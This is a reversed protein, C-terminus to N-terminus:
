KRVTKRKEPPKVLEKRVAGVSVLYNPRDGDSTNVFHTGHKYRGDRIRTLIWKDTVGLRSAAEKPTLWAANEVQKELLQKVAATADTVANTAATLAAIAQILEANEEFM